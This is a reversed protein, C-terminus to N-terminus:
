LGHYSLTTSRAHIDQVQNPIYLWKRINLLEEERAVLSDLDYLTKMYTGDLGEGACLNFFTSLM